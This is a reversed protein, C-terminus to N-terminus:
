NILKVIKIYGFQKREKKIYMFFDIIYSAPYLIVTEPYKERLQLIKNIFTIKDMDLIQLIEDYIEQLRIDKNWNMNQHTIKNLINSFTLERVNEKTLPINM